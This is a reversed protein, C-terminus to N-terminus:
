CYYPERQKGFIEPLKSNRVMDEAAVKTWTMMMM